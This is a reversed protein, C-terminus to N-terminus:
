SYFSWRHEPTMVRPCKVMILPHPPWRVWPLVQWFCSFSEKGAAGAAVTRQHSLIPHLVILPMQSAFKWETVSAGIEPRTRYFPMALFQGFNPLSCVNAHFFLKFPFLTVFLRLYRGFYCVIFSANTDWKKGEEVGVGMGKLILCVGAPLSHFLEPLLLFPIAPPVCAWSASLQLCLYSCRPLVEERGLADHSKRSSFRTKGTRLSTHEKITLKAPWHGVIGWSM